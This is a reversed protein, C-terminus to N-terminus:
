VLQGPLGKLEVNLNGYKPEGNVTTTHGNAMLQLGGYGLTYVETNFNSGVVAKLHPLAKKYEEKSDPFTFKEIEEDLAKLIAEPTGIFCISWSM